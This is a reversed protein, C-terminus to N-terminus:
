VGANELVLRGSELVGMRLRLVDDLGVSGGRPKDDMAVVEAEKVPGPFAEELILEAFGIWEDAGGNEEREVAVVGFFGDFFFFDVLFVGIM